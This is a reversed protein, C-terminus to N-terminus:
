KNMGEKVAKGTAAVSNPATLGGGVRVVSAGAGSPGIQEGTIKLIIIRNSGDLDAPHAIKKKIEEKVKPTLKINPTLEKKLANQIANDWM